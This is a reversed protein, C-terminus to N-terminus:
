LAELCAHRYFKAELSTGAITSPHKMQLLKQCSTLLPIVLTLIWCLKWAMADQRSRDCIWSIHYKGGNRCKAGAIQDCCGNQQLPKMQNLFAGQRLAKAALAPRLDRLAAPDLLEAFQSYQASFSTEASLQEPFGKSARQWCLATVASASKLDLRRDRLSLIAAIVGTHRDWVLDRFIAKCAYKSSLDNWDYTSSSCHVYSSM